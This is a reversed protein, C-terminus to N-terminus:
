VVTLHTKNTNIFTMYDERHQMSTLRSCITLEETFDSMRLGGDLKFLENYYIPTKTFGDLQEQTKLYHEYKYIEGKHFFPILFTRCIAESMTFLYGSTNIIKDKLKQLEKSELQIIEDLEHVNLLCKAENMESKIISSYTDNSFDVAYAITYFDTSNLSSFNSFGFTDNYNGDSNRFTACRSVYAPLPNYTLLYWQDKEHSYGLLWDSNDTKYNVVVKNLKNKADEPSLFTQEAGKIFEQAIFTYGEVAQPKDVDVSKLFDTVQENPLLKTYLSNNFAKKKQSKQVLLAIFLLPSILIFLVLMLPYQIFKNKVVMCVMLLFLSPLAVVFALTYGLILFLYFSNFATIAASDPNVAGVTEALTTFGFFNFLPYFISDWQWIMFLVFLLGMAGATGTNKIRNYHQKAGYAWLLDTLM